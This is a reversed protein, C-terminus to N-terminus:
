GVREYHRVVQRLTIQSAYQASAFADPGTGIFPQVRELVFGPPIEAQLNACITDAIEWAKEKDIGDVTVEMGRVRFGVVSLTIEPHYLRDPLDNWLVELACLIIQQLRPVLDEAGGKPQPPGYPAEIRKLTMM